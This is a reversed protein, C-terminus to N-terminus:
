LALRLVPYAEPGDDVRVFGAADFISPPGMWLEDDRVDERPRRPTAELAAAGRERALDIAGKLLAHGIGRKRHSPAVVMCGVVMVGSRDGDFCSLTRYVRRDYLKTMAAAPALKLWGVVEDGGGEDLLAVVGAATPSGEQLARQMEAANLEPELNCRATWYLDEGEFHWWRCHCGNSSEAFLAKLGAGHKPAVPVCVVGSASM